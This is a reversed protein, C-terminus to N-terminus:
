HDFKKCAFESADLGSTKRNELSEVIAWDLAVFIFLYDIEGIVEFGNQSLL